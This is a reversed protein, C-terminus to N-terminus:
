QLYGKIENYAEEIAEIDAGIEMVLKTIAEPKFNNLIKGAYDINQLIEEASSKITKLNNIITKSNLDNNDESYYKKFTKKM